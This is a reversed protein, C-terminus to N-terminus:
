TVVTGTLCIATHVVSDLVFLPFSKGCLKVFLCLVALTFRPCTFSFPSVCVCVCVCVCLSIYGSVITVNM